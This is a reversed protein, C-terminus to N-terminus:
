KKKVAPSLINEEIGYLRSFIRLVNGDVAPVAKGYAISLVAGATYDGVGKLSKMEKLTQPM